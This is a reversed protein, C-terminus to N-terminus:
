KALQCINYCEELSKAQLNTANSNLNLKLSMEQKDIKLQINTWDKVEKIIASDIQRLRTM